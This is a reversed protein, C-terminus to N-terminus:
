GVMASRDAAATASGRASTLRASRSGGAPNGCGFHPLLRQTLGGGMDQGRGEEMRGVREEGEGAGTDEAFEERDEWEGGVGSWRWRKEWGDRGWGAGEWNRM